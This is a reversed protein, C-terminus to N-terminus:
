AGFICSKCVVDEIISIQYHRDTCALFRTNKLSVEINELVRM